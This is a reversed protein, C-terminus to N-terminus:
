TKTAQLGDQLRIWSFVESFQHTGTPSQKFWGYQSLCPHVIVMTLILLIYFYKM